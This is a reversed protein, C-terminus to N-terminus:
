WEGVVELGANSGIDTLLKTGNRKSLELSLISSISEQIETKMGSDGPAKLIIPNGRDARINLKHRLSSFRLIVEKESVDVVLSSFRYSSFLYRNEMTDLVAAFGLVLMGAVRIKAIAVSLSVFSANFRNCQMWIHAQPFKTGWDKEIYGRGNELSVSEHKFSVEGSVENALSVIGHNCELNPWYSLPGMINPSMVKKHWDVHNSFRLDLMLNPLRLKIKYKSFESEQLRVEFDQPSAQFESMPFDIYSSSFDAGNVFQIFAKENGPKGKVVGVILAFVRTGNTNEFKYYWGEFFGSSKSFGHYREPFWANKPTHLLSLM